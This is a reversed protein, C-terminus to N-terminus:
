ICHFTLFTGFSDNIAIFQLKVFTTNGYVADDTYINQYINWAVNIFKGSKWWYSYTILQMGSSFKIWNQADHIMM